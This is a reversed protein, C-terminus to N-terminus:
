TRRTSTPRCRGDQGPPVKKPTGRDSRQRLGIFREGFFAVDNRVKRETLGFGAAARLCDAVFHRKTRNDMVSRPKLTM